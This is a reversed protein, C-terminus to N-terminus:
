HQELSPFLHHTTRLHILFTSSHGPAESLNTQVVCMLIRAPTKNCESTKQWVDGPFCLGPIWSSHVKGSIWFAWCFCLLYPCSPATGVLGRPPPARCLPLTQFWSPCIPRDSDWLKSKRNTGRKRELDCITDSHTTDERERRALTEVSYEKEQRLGHGCLDSVETLKILFSHINLAFSVLWVVGILRDNM